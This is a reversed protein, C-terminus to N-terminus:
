RLALPVFAAYNPSIGAWFGGTLAYPGGIAAGAYAQGVTGGLSYGGGTSFTAGGGDTSNWTLDYGGGTQATVSQGGLLAMLLALVITARKM